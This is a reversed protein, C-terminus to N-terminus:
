VIEIVYKRDEYGRVEAVEDIVRGTATRKISVITNIAESILEPQARAGSEEILMAIRHLAANCDNAHVTGLGGPHGTNWAKLLALAASDRVEGVVIRDPRLRMTARLLQQMGTEGNTLLQVTNKASCQLEAVDEIMVIRSEEDAEAIEKLIANAFTTKGTGTGGSILINRKQRIASIVAEYRQQNLMGREVYDLLSFILKAKKRITFTPAAVLPPILAEFRCGFVPLECELIPNDISVVRNLMAASCGIISMSQIPDINSIRKMGEGGAFDAWLTLDPNAMIEVVSDNNLLSLITDGM